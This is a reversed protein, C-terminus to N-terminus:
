KVERFDPRLHKDRIFNAADVLGKKDFHDAVALLTHIPFHNFRSQEGRMHARITERNEKVRTRQIVETVTASPHADVYVRVAIENLLQKERHPTIVPKDVEFAGLLARNLEPHLTGSSVTRSILKGALATAYFTAKTGEGVSKVLGVVQLKALIRRGLEFRLAGKTNHSTSLIHETQKAIEQVTLRRNTTLLNKLLLYAYNWTPEPPAGSAHMWVYAKTNSDTPLKHVLGALDLLPTVRVLGNADTDFKRALDVASAYSGSTFLDDHVKKLLNGRIAKASDTASGSFPPSLTARELSILANFHPRLDREDLGHALVLAAGIETAHLKRDGYKQMATLIERQCLLQRLAADATQGPARTPNAQQKELKALQEELVRRNAESEAAERAPSQSSVMRGYRTRHKLILGIAEDLTVHGMKRWLEVRNSPRRM